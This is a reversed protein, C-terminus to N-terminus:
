KAMPGLPRPSSHQVSDLTARQHQQQPLLDQLTLTPSQVHHCPTSNLLQVRVTVLTRVTMGPDLLLRSSSIKVVRRAMRNARVGITTVAAIRTLVLAFFPTQTTEKGAILAKRQDTLQVLGPTQETSALSQATRAPVKFQPSIVLAVVSHCEQLMQNLLQM